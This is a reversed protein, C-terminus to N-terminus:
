RRGSQAPNEDLYEQYLEPNEKMVVDLAHGEDLGETKAVLEKALSQMKSWAGSAGDNTAVVGQNRLLVSKRVAENTETWQKELQAGFEESVEYAKQLMVGMEETTMGPVHSFKEACKEVYEKRIRQSREAQLLAATEAAEKRLGEMESQQAKFIAQMEAPMDAPVHSKSVKKKKDGGFPPAAGPFPKDEEDDMPEKAKAKEVDFGAAKLVEGFLEKSL